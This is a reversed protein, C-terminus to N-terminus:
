GSRSSPDSRHTPLNTHTLVFLVRALRVFLTTAGTYTDDARLM